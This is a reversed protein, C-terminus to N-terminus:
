VFPHKSNIEVLLDRDRAWPELFVALWNGQPVPVLTAWHVGSLLGAYKHFLEGITDMAGNLDGMIPLSALPKRDTHALHTDVYQKVASSTTTLTDLDALVRRPDFRMEEDAFTSAWVHAFHRRDDNDGRALYWEITLREPDNAIETLLTGLSVVRGGAEVQRRVAMSQTVAYTGSIFDFVSSPPLSDNRKTIESVAEYVYRRHLMEIVQPQIAQELWRIWKDIRSDASM